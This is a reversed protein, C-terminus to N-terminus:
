GGSRGYRLTKVIEAVSRAGGVDCAGQRALAHAHRSPTDVLDRWVPAQVPIWSGTGQSRAYTIVQGTACQIGEYAASVSGGANRMVVVYRVVGDTSVSVTQPDIGVKVTVYPPMELPILRETSFMPAPPSQDDPPQTAEAALLPQAVWTALLWFALAAVVRKSSKM